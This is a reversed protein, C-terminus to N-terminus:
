RHLLRRLLHHLHKEGGADGAFNDYMNTDGEIHISSSIRALIAGAPLCRLHYLLKPPM